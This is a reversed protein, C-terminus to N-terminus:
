HNLEELAQLDHWRARLVQNDILAAPGLFPRRLPLVGRYIEHANKQEALIQNQAALRDCKSGQRGVLLQKCADGVM